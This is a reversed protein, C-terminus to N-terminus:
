YSYVFSRDVRGDDRADDRVPVPRVAHADALHRTQYLARLSLRACIRAPRKELRPARTEVFVATARRRRRRREDDSRDTATLLSLSIM